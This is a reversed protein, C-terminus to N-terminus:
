YNRSEREEIIANGRLMKAGYIRKMRGAFDPRKRPRSVKLAPPTVLMAVIQGRKTIAVSDGREVRHLVNTFDRRLETM